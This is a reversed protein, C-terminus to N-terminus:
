APGTGTSESEPKLPEPKLPEPKTWTKGSGDKELTKKFMFNGTTHFIVIGEEKIGTRESREALEALCEDILKRDFFDATGLVEVVELDPTIFEANAWRTTNFLSMTKEHGGYGSQIGKGWWEGFHLGPGLDTILTERNDEVWKAFGANDAAPTIIRTRSQAWVTYTGDENDHVGVASNTGDIKRTVIIPRDLRPIPPWEKFEPMYTM